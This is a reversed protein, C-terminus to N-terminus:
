LCAPLPSRKLADGCRSLSVPQSRQGGCLHAGLLGPSGQLRLPSLPFLLVASPSLSALLPTPSRCPTGPPEQTLGRGWQLHAWGRFSFSGGPRTCSVFLGALSVALAPAHARQRRSAGGGPPVLFWSHGLSHSGLLGTGGWSLGWSCFGREHGRPHDWWAALPHLLTPPPGAQQCYPWSHQVGGGGPGVWPLGASCQSM